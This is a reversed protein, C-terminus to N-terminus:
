VSDCRGRYSGGVSLPRGRDPSPLRSHAEYSGPADSAMAVLPKIPIFEGTSTEELVGESRLDSLVGAIDTSFDGIISRVESLRLIGQSSYRAALEKLVGQFHKEDWGSVPLKSRSIKDCADLWHLVDPTIAVYQGLRDKHEIVLEFYRPRRVMARATEPISQLFDAPLRKSALAAQFEPEDYPGITIM